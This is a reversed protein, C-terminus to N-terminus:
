HVFLLFVTLILIINISHIDNYQTITIPYYLFFLLLTTIPSVVHQKAKMATYVVSMYFNVFTISCIANGAIGADWLFGNFRKINIDWFLCVFLFGVVSSACM